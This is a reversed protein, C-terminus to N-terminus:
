SEEGSMVVSSTTFGRTNMCETGIKVGLHFYVSSLRLLRFLVTSEVQTSCSFKYLM